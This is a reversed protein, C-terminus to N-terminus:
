NDLLTNWMECSNHFRLYFEKRLIENQDLKKFKFNIEETEM